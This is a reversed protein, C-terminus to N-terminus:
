LKAVDKEIFQSQRVNRNRIVYSFSIYWVQTKNFSTYDSYTSSGKYSNNLYNDLYYRFRVQLGYPFQIGAFVSPIFHPTRDSFWEVYKTKEDNEFVKQKFAFMWEYEAGGFLYLNKDFAGVKIALPIGLNYTRYKIKVDNEETILGVNRIGLGSFLGINNNLDFHIYEGLHFFLTFRVNSNIDTNNQEVSSSQFIIEGSTTTYFGQASSIFTAILLFAPILISRKM